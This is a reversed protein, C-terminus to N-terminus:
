RDVLQRVHRVIATIQADTLSPQGGYAPMAQGSFNDPSRADRGSKVLAVLEGESRARVYEPRIYAVTAGMVRHCGSCSREFQTAGDAAALLASAGGAGPAPDLQAISSAPQASAQRAAFAGAAFPTAAALVIVLVFVVPPLGEVADTPAARRRMIAVGCCIAITVFATLALMPVTVWYPFWGLQWLSDSSCPVSGKCPYMLMIQPVKQLGIHRLSALVGLASLLLAYGPMRGDRRAIGVALLLAQPYMLIRQYWCWLCPLWGLVDSMYLSGFTAVLAAALAGYLAPHVREAGDVASIM